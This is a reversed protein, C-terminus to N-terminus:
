LETCQLSVSRCKCPPRCAKKCGCKILEKCVKAAEPLSTKFPIWHDDPRKELGWEGPSPLQQHVGLPQGWCCGAQYVARKIHEKLAAETRPLMSSPSREPFKEGLNKKQLRIYQLIDITSRSRFAIWIEDISLAHFTAISLVVVDTNM